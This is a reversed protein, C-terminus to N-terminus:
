ANKLHVALHKAMSYCAQLLYGGTMTDWDVMEGLCFHNEKKHLEFHETLESIGIGGSSSIAEEIPRFGKSQITFNKILTVLNDKTWDDKSCNSKLFQISTKSLKIRKLASSLNDNKLFIEKRLKDDSWQPKFDVSFTIEENKQARAQRIGYMSLPYIANGELGYKTINFEGDIRQENFTISINKISKGQNNELFAGYEAPLEIGTNCSRFPEIKVSETMFAETWKGTSGTVTWSAGGLAFIHYDAEYEKVVEENEILVGKPTFGQFDHRLYIELQSPFSKKFANLVQIPKIGKEPFIRGSSGTFTPVGIEELYKIFDNHDYKKLVTELCHSPLYKDILNHNKCSNTLNFGGKGAVLFKKAISSANTFLKFSFQQSDTFQSLFFISAAGGGYINVTKIRM